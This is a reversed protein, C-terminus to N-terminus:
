GKGRPRLWVAVFPRALGALSETGVWFSLMAILWSAEECHRAKIFRISASDSLPIPTEGSRVAAGHGPSGYGPSLGIMEVTEPAVPTARCNSETM